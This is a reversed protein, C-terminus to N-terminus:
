KEKKGKTTPATLCRKMCPDQLARRLYDETAKQTAKVRPQSKDLKADMDYDPNHMWGGHLSHFWYGGHCEIDQLAHLGYGLNEWASKCDGRKAADSALQFHKDAMEKRRDRGLFPRMHYVRTPFRAANAADDTAANANGIEKAAKGLIGLQKAWDETWSRHDKPDWLGAPDVSNVPNNGVYAYLNMGGQYGIPDQTIFRGLFPDYYRAGLLMLSHDKDKYYGLQGVYRFANQTQGPATLPIGYADYDYTEVTQWGENTLAHASGIFDTHYWLSQATGLQGDPNLREGVRGVTGRAYAVSM